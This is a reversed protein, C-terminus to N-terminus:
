RRVFFRLIRLTRYSLFIRIRTLVRLSPNTLRYCVLSYAVILITILRSCIRFFLYCVFVFLFRLFLFLSLLVFLTPIRRFIGFIWCFLFHGGGFRRFIYCLISDFIDHLIRQRDQREEPLEVGSLLDLGVLLLLHSSGLRPPMLLSPLGLAFSVLRGLFQGLHDGLDHLRQSAIWLVQLGIERPHGLNVPGTGLEEGAKGIRPEEVLQLRGKDLRGIALLDPFM